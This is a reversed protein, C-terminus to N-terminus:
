DRGRVRLTILVSVAKVADCWDIKRGAARRIKYCTEMDTLSSRRDLRRRGAIIERPAPLDIELRREIVSTVTTRENFVPVVISILPAPSTGTV